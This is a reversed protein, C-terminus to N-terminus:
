LSAILPFYPLSMLILPVVLLLLFIYIMYFLIRKIHLVCINSKRKMQLFSEIGDRIYFCTGLLVFCFSVMMYLVILLYTSCLTKRKKNKAKICEEDEVKFYIKCREKSAKDLHRDKYEKKCYKCFKHLCNLCVYNNLGKRGFLYEGNCIPCHMEKNKTFMYFSENSNVDIVNKKSYSTIQENNRNMRLNSIDHISYNMPGKKGKIFYEIINQSLIRELEDLTYFFNCIVIPCKFQFSDIIEGNSIKYEFYNSLCYICFKHACNHTTFIDRSPYVRSCILCKASPTPSFLRNNSSITSNCVNYNSNTPSLLENTNTITEYPLNKNSNGKTSRDNTTITIYNVRTSLTNNITNQTTPFFCEQQNLILLKTDKKEKGVTNFSNQNTGDLPSMTAAEKKEESYSNISYPINAKNQTQESPRKSKFKDTSISYEQSNEIINSINERKLLYKTSIGRNNNHTVSIHKQNYVVKM